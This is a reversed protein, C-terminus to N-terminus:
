MLMERTETGVVYYAAAAGLAQLRAYRNRIGHEARGPLMPAILAWRHGFESVGQMIKEDEERTWGIRDMTRQRERRGEAAGRVDGGGSGGSVANASSASPLASRDLENIRTWRNRVADDTRGPVDAAVLRWKYGHREVSVCIAADEEASWEKRGNKNRGERQKAPASPKGSAHPPPLALTTRELPLVMAALPVPNLVTPIASAAPTRWTSIMPRDQPPPLPLSVAAVPPLTTLPAPQGSLWLSTAPVAAQLPPSFPASTDSPPCSREIAQPSPRITCASSSSTSPFSDLEDEDYDDHISSTSSNLLGFWFSELEDPCEREQSYGGRDWRLHHRSRKAASASNSLTLMPPATRRKTLRKMGDQAIDQSMVVVARQPVSRPSGASAPRILGVVPPTPRAIVSRDVKEMIRNV